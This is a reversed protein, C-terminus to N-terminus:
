VDEVRYVQAAVADKFGPTGIINNEVWSIAAERDYFGGPAEMPVDLTVTDWTQDLRAILFEIKMMRGAPAM